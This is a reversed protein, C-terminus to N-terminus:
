ELVKIAGSIFSMCHEDKIRSMLTQLYGSKQMKQIAEDFKEAPNNQMVNQKIISFVEQDSLQAEPCDERIQDLILTLKVNQKAMDILKERDMDIMNNWDLHANQALYQAEATAMWNPVSIDTEAVLRHTIAERVKAKNFNEVRAFSAQAVAEQLEQYTQKNLKKALTDDLACPICKSGTNVTVTFHVTKGAVSPMGDAPAVFDFERTEGVKMGLLNEDFGKLPNTGITMMEEKTSLADVIQGDLTADYDVVINDGSQVFDTDAYPIIDGLRVRLEQLMKETVEETTHEVHPKPIEFSKWDCTVFEPKTLMEFDCTFKGGELTAENFKPPGHAKLRKESCVSQFAEEAMAQKLSADIQKSYYLRIADMPAKGQRFGKVPANKFVGLVEVKKAKIEDSTAEYHVSLKCQEIESIQIEM